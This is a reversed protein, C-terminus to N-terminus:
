RRYIEKENQRSRRVSIIRIFKGRITYIGSWIENGIRAIIIWRAEDVTKAPIIVYNLNEWLRQAQEFDIGHKIRNVQSKVVDFEFEM